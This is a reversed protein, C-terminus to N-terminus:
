GEKQYKKDKSEVTILQFRYKQGEKNVEETFSSLARIWLKNEGYLGRYVVYPQLNESDTAISEVIYYNGRYHRYIGKEKVEM